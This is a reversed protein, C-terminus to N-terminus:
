AGQFLSRYKPAYGKLFANSDTVDEDRNIALTWALVVMEANMRDLYQHLADANDKTMNGSVHVAMAYQVDLKEPVAVKTPNAIIDEIPTLTEWIETFARFEIARGEGVSGSMAAMKIDAPMNPDMYFQAAIEWTRPTAFAKEPNGPDYTHLYDKQFNLFAVMVAPIKDPHKMAWYSWSQTDPVIEAHVLRNSLPAPQRNTVGRDSDKNGALVIIVNDMLIHEGCRRDNTIQYMVASVAPTAANAEDFFLLIPAGDEDFRPNGKFPMTSPVYWVTSNTDPDVGPFGRMDVSDYQSLRIDILIAQELQSAALVGESKGVGMSGWFMLPRRHKFGVHQILQQMQPISVTQM